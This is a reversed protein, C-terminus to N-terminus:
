ENNMDKQMEINRRVKKIGEAWYIANFTVTIPALVIVGLGITLTIFATCVLIGYSLCLIYIGWLKMYETSALTELIEIDYVERYDGSKSLKYSVVPLVYVCIIAFSALPLFFLGAVLFLVSFAILPVYAIALQIGDDALTRYNEFKPPSEEEITNRQLNVLYGMLILLPVAFIFSSICIIIQLGNSLADDDSYPYKLSFEVLRFIRFNEEKM